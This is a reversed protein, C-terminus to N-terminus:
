RGDSGGVPEATPLAADVGPRAEGAGAHGRNRNWHDRMRDDFCVNGAVSSNRIADEREKDLEKQVAVRRDREDHYKAALADRNRTLRKREENFLQNQEVTAASWKAQVEERGEDRRNDDYVAKGWFLLAVVLAIAGLKIMTVTDAVFGKNRTRM